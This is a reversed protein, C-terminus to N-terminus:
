QLIWRTSVPHSPHGTVLAQEWQIASSSLNPRGIDIAQAFWAVSKNTYEYRRQQSGYSFIGQNAASNQLEILVNAWQAKDDASATCLLEVITGLSAHETSGQLANRQEVHGYVLVPMGFDAPHFIHDDKFCGADASSLAIFIRAVNGSDLGANYLLAGNAIGIPTSCVTPKAKVYGENLLAAILRSITEFEAVQEPSYLSAVTM